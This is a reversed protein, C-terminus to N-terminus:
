MVLVVLGCVVYFLAAGMTPNRQWCKWCGIDLLVLKSCVATVWREHCVCAHSFYVSCTGFHTLFLMGCAAINPKKSAFFLLFVDPLWPSAPVMLVAM